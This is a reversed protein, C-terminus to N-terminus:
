AFVSEKEKLAQFITKTKEHNNIFKEIQSYKIEGNESLYLNFLNEDRFCKAFVSMIELNAVGNREKETLSYNGQKINKIDKYIENIENYIDEKEKKLSNKMENINNKEEIYSDKLILSELFLGSVLPMIGLPILDPNASVFCGTLIAIIAIIQLYLNVCGAKYNFKNSFANKLTMKWLSPKKNGKMTENEKLIELINDYEVKKDALMKEKEKLLVNFLINKLNQLAFQVKM